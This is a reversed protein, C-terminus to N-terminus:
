KRAWDLKWGWNPPVCSHRSKKYRENQKGTPKHTMLRPNEILTEHKRKQAIEEQLQIIAPEGDAKLIMRTNGTEAISKLVKEVVHKDSTGKCEVLHCFTFKTHRDRGILLKRVARQDKEGVEAYDMSINPLESGDNKRRGAQHKDERGRAKVCIPCWSRYPLHTSWHREKEDQTPDSPNRTRKAPAEEGEQKEADTDEEAEEQDKEEGTKEDAEGQEERVEHLGGEEQVIKRAVAKRSYPRIRKGISSSHTM